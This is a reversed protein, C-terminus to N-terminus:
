ITAQATPFLEQECAGPPDIRNDLFGGSEPDQWTELHPLGIRLIDFRQLLSAGILMCALPYSGHRTEFPGQPSVGEMAGDPTMMNEQIWNLNRSSAGLHGTLALAWPARYYYLGGQVPGISGDPNLHELLWREGKRSVERFKSIKDGLDASCM